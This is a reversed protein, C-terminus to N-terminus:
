VGELGRVVCGIEAGIPVVDMTKQAALGCALHPLSGFFLLTHRLDQNIHTARARASPICAKTDPLSLLSGCNVLSNASIKACLGHMRVMKALKSQNSNHPDPSQGGALSYEALSRTYLLM